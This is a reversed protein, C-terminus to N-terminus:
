EAGHETNHTIRNRKTEEENDTKQPRCCLTILKAIFVNLFNVALSTAIIAKSGSGIYKKLRGASM